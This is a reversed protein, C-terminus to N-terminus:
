PAPKPRPTGRPRGLNRLHWPVQMESRGRCLEKGRTHCPTRASVASEVKRSGCTTPGPPGLCPVSPMEVTCDLSMNVILGDSGLKPASGLFTFPTVCSGRPVSGMYRLGLCLSDSFTATAGSLGGFALLVLEGERETTLENISCNISQGYTM